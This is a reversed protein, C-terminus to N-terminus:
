LQVSSIDFYITEIRKLTVEKRKKFHAELDFGEKGYGIKYEEILLAYDQEKIAEIQYTLSEIMTDKQGIKERKLESLNIGGYRNEKAQTMQMEIHTRMSALMYQMQEITTNKPLCLIVIPTEITYGWSGEVSLETDFASKLIKAIPEKDSLKPFDRSM